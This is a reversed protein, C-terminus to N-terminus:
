YRFLKSKQLLQNRFEYQLNFDSVNIFEEDISLEKKAFSYDEKKRCIRLIAALILKNQYPKQTKGIMALALDYKKLKELRQILFSDIGKSNSNKEANLKLTVLAELKVIDQIAEWKDIKSKVLNINHDDNAQEAFLLFDSDIVLRTGLFTYLNKQLGASLCTSNILEKIDDLFSRMIEASADKELNRYATVFISFQNPRLLPLMKLYAQAAQSFRGYQRCIDGQLKPFFSNAPFQLMAQQCLTIAEDPQDSFRFKTISDALLRQEDYM